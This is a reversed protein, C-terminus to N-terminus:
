QVFKRPQNRSWPDYNRVFVLRENLPPHSYLWIKIFPNPSPDSLNVEGLVQFAVAAAKQPELVIGHIVELGYIDAHHEQMRSYTSVLPTTLFSFLSFLFVLVPLSAYDSVDRIDWGIGYKAVLSHMFHYGVFLFILLLLSIFIITKIIHHLVYHGMEHGFVYLTEPVTMKSMTTDWVVVRKSAGFGTVYANVSKLKESANMLFMRERPISLGGRQVVKEIETVLQPAKKELPEFKFFLPDIVVPSIFLVFVIIPLAALWFYFWWLRTSRRIVGYLIWVIFSALVLFILQGKSWDWFWSAWTQISQDYKLSLFQGYIDLPLTLVALSLTLLPVIIFVQAIRIKSVREALTRFHGGVRKKLFIWFLVLGYFVGAFYLTYRARAYQIAQQYKEPSLTYSSVDRESKKQQEQASVCIAFLLCMFAIQLARKWRSTSRDLMNQM